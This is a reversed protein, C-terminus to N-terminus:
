SYPTFGLNRGCRGCRTTLYREGLRWENDPPRVPVCERSSPVGLLRCMFRRAAIATPVKTYSQLPTWRTLASM